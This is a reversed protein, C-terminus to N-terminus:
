WHRIINAVVFLCTVVNLAVIFLRLYFSVLAEEMSLVPLEPKEEDTKGIRHDLARALIFIWRKRIQRM